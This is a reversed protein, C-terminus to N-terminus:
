ALSHTWVCMNEDCMRATMHFCLNQFEKMGKLHRYM